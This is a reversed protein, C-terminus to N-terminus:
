VLEVPDRLNEEQYDLNIATYVNDFDKFVEVLANDAQPTSRMSKVFMLDYAINKPKQREIYRTIKAYIDRRLPWEGYKDLVYEYSADDIAIIVIDKNHPKAFRSFALVSQRIDFTKNEMSEFFSESYEDKLGFFLFLVIICFWFIFKKLM